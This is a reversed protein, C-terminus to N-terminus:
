APTAKKLGLYGIYVGLVWWCLALILSLGFTVYMLPFSWYFGLTSVVGLAVTKWCPGGEKLAGSITTGWGVWLCNVLLPLWPLKAYPHIFQDM